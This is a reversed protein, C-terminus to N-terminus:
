GHKCFKIKQLFIWNKEQSVIVISLKWNSGSDVFKEEL